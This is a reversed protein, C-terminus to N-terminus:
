LCNDMSFCQPNDKYMGKDELVGQPACIWPDHTKHQWSVLKKKLSELITSYEPKSVLNTLEEPDNKIDFLEWESRYYYDVLKKYWYTPEHNRTRNLLDQFTPALFFDQDIPFPMKYNLNHILKFQETRISRMPYYMTVEHINHSLYVESFNAVPEKDLVSLLSKGTLKVTENKSFISYKPYTISFWDLVTPTIDLLSVMAESVQGNRKTHYPSSLLMPEAMGPEYFNTRGSPFPIGNDSTYLILTDKDHGAEKLENLVIGIGQDLRSITQYQAALDNRTEITDQIFYPVEITWPDYVVPKWDPILGMGKEGTGFKECFQGYEPHTHGCRHPDHFGIYLFFPSSGTFDFFQKVLEKIRTINRGVQLISNNEETQAFDFPYVAEPGVHKKGIIGRVINNQKLIYPLSKVQDFTNFHHVDQHLGYMGNQHQPLGTLISSRSPSCSSVSTFANKFVLSRKSLETLHPMKSITNNYVQSEFGGDDAVIVLVNVSYVEYIHLLLVCSFLSIRSKM